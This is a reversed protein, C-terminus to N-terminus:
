DRTVYWGASAGGNATSGYTYVKYGPDDNPTANFRGMEWTSESTNWKGTVIIQYTGFPIDTKLCTGPAVLGTTAGNGAFSLFSWYNGQSCLQVRGKGMAAAAPGTTAALSAAITTAVMAAGIAAKNLITKIRM